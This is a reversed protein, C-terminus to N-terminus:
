ILTPCRLFRTKSCFQSGRCPLFSEFYLNEAVRQLIPTQLAIYSQICHKIAIDFFAFQLLWCVNINLSYGCIVLLHSALKSFSIQPGLAKHTCQRHMHVWIIIFFSIRNKNTAKYQIKIKTITVADNFM